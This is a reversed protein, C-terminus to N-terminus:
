GSGTPPAHPAVLLTEVFPEANSAKAYKAPAPRLSALQLRAILDCLATLDHGQLTVVHSTFTLLLRERGAALSFQASTLQHWPFIWKEQASTVVTLSAVQAEFTHCVHAEASDARRRDIAQQLSSM